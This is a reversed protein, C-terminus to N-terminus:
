GLSTVVVPRCTSNYVTNQIICIYKKCSNKRSIIRRKCSHLIERGKMMKEMLRGTGAM